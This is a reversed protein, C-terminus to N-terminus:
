AYEALAAADLGHEYGQLQMPMQAHAQVAPSGAMSDQQIAGQAAIPVNLGLM